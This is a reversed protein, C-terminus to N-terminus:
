AHEVLEDALARKEEVPVHTRLATLVYLRRGVLTPACRWPRIQRTNSPVQNGKEQRVIDRRILDYVHMATTSSGLFPQDSDYTTKPDLVAGDAVALDLEAERATPPPGSM